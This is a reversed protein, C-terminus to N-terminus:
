GVREDIRLLAGALPRPRGAVFGAKGGGSSSGGGGGGGGGGRGRKRQADPETDTWYEEDDDTEDAEGQKLDLEASEEKSIKRLMADEDRYQREMAKHRKYQPEHRKARNKFDDKVVDIYNVDVPLQREPAFDAYNGSGGTLRRNLEHQTLRQVHLPLATAEAIDLDDLRSRLRAQQSLAVGGVYYAHHPGFAWRYAPSAAIEADTVPGQERSMAQLQILYALHRRLGPTLERGRYAAWLDPARRYDVQGMDNAWESQARAAGRVERELTSTAMQHLNARMLKRIERRDRTIGQIVPEDDAPEPEGDDSLVEIADSQNM